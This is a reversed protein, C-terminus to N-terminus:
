REEGVPNGLATHLQIQAVSYGAVSELNMLQVEALVQISQMAELPLGENEFIRERNLEYARQARASAMSSLGMQERLSLVHAYGERVEAVIYDHVKDKELEVQRLQARTEQIRGRNGLGFQDFQWYLMLTLDDRHGREDVSSGPAGGFDGSSYNLSFKPIFLGYREATLGDQAAGIMADYQQTEPRSALAQAVLENVNEEDSFIEMVPVTSELPELHVDVDLHLLRALTVSTTEAREVAARHRQEWILSQVAAMEADALLGEGAEAYDATVTSLDRARQLSEATIEMEARAQLLRLYAKAVQLLVQHRNANSAAEAAAQNQRAMLPQFIAEAIDIEVALGAARPDGAGVAGAGLGRFESVRDVDIVQGDTEQLNGSHRNYSAGVTLTPV